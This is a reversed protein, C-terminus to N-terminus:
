VRMPMLVILLQPKDASTVLTPSGMDKLHFKVERGGIASLAERVYKANFGIRIPEEHVYDVEITDETSGRDYNDVSLDIKGKSFAMRVAKSKGDVVTSVREVARELVNREVTAFVDNDMPLAREYDPYTGDILKSIFRTGDSTEICIRTEGLSVTIPSDDDADKAIAMIRQVAKTPIIIHPMGEAGEPLSVVNKALKHGDTAVAHLMGATARLFVGCMFYRTEETGVCFQVDGLLNVLGPGTMKFTNKLDAVPLEPFDLAPLAMLKLRSRGSSVQVARGEEVVALKVAADPDLKSVFQQLTHVPVTIAGTEAVDATIPVTIERDLDTATLKLGEAYARLLVNGLVPVLIAGQVVTAVEKTARALDGATVAFQM